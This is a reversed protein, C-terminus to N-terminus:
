ARPHVPGCSREVPQDAHAQGVEPVRVLPLRLEESKRVRVYTMGAALGAAFALYFLAVAKPSLRAEVGPTFRKPVVLYDGVSAAATTLAANRLVRTAPRCTSEAFLREAVVGWFMSAVHHIAYGVVTHRISPGNQRFSEGSWLWHSTANVAALPHGTEIRSLAALAVSSVVSAVSGTIAGDRLATRSPRM